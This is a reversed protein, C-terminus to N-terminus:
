ELEKYNLESFKSKKKIFVDIILSKKCWGKLNPSSIVKRAERRAKLWKNLGFVFKFDAVIIARLETFNGMFLARLAAVQDLLIRMPILFFVQTRSLNKIMM